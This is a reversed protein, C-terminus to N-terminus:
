KGPFGPYLGTGASWFPHDLTWGRRFPLVIMVNSVSLLCTYQTCFDKVVM